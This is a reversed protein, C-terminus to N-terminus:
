YMYFRFLSLKLRSVAVLASLESDGSSNFPAGPETREKEWRKVFLRLSLGEFMFRLLIPMYDKKSNM